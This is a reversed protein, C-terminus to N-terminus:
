LVAKGGVMVPWQRGKLDDGATTPREDGFRQVALRTFSNISAHLAFFHSLVSSLLVADGTQFLSDHLEVTVLTGRAFGNWANAVREVIPKSSVKLIANIRQRDVHSEPNSYLLLMERLAAAAKDGELTLFNLSLHSVLRWLAQGGLPPAVPYTPKRLSFIGAVPLVEDTHLASEADIHNPALAGNSCLLHAYVIEDAPLTPDFASDHFSLYLEPSAAAGRFAAERRAHWFAPRMEPRAGHTERALTHTFSYFPSYERTRQAADSSGSVSRISHIDVTEVRRHDAVLRYEIKQQDIRIPESTTEYLNIAPTCGLVFSEHTVLVRGRPERDLIFLLDIATGEARGKLGAVDIFHFKQEFAFYEQLLRYAPHGQAATPIVEEDEGFGVQQIELYPLDPITQAGHPVVAVRCHGDLLLSHLRHVVMDGHLFFRVTDIGLKEFPENLSELTLRLVSGPPKHSRSVAYDSGQVFHAHTVKLPWVSTAYSTRFRCVDHEDTEFFLQTGRPVVTAVPLKPDPDFRVITMSPIPNLYSPYLIDLLETAIEPFDNDLDTQIRAALFAFSEILREVHPDPCEDAQLELRRAIKPHRRAFREGMRRLYSLEELYCRLFEDDHHSM